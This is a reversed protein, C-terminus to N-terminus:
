GVSSDIFVLCIDIFVRGVNILVLAIDTCVLCVDILVAVVNCRVFSVDIAVVVVYRGAFSVDLNVAVVYCPLNAALTTGADTNKSIYKELSLMLPACHPYWHTCDNQLLSLLRQGIYPQELVVWVNRPFTFGM